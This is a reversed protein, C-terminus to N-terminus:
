LEKANTFASGIQALSCIEFGEERACDILASFVSIAEVGAFYPHDYFVRLPFSRLRERFDDVIRTRTHGLALHQEIYAIGGEGCISVPVNKLGALKRPELIQRNLDDSIFLFQPFKSLVKSVRTGGKACPSAFVTPEIGLKRLKELGWEIEDRIQEESWSDVFRCWLEHNRGGHLGIEHGQAAVSKIIETYKGVLPNLLACVLYDLKGLKRLPGLHPYDPIDSKPKNLIAMLSHYPSVARGCNVFFSFTAEKERGLKLLNPIGVKACKHTDVDFRFCIKKKM